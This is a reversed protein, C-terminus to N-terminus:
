PLERWAAVREHWASGCEETWVMGEDPEGHMVWGNHVNGFFRTEMGIEHYDENDIPNGDADTDYVPAELICQYVGEKTPREPAYKWETLEVLRLGKLIMLKQAPTFGCDSDSLKQRVDAILKADSM